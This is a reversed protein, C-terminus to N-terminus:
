EGRDLSYGMADNYADCGGLMGAEMAIERQWDSDDRHPARHRTRRADYVEPGDLEVWLVSSDLPEEAFVALAEALTAFEFGTWCTDEPEDVTPDSGWHNVTFPLARPEPCSTHNRM